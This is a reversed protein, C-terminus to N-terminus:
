ATLDLVTRSAETRCRRVRDVCLDFYHRDIESGVSNRGCSAAAVSTTGTGLFPDFVTDGVFSFMRILRQALRLPYPAPHNRTSVGGLRWIQQFWEAHDPAPIVSMLRTALEPKRYGGPKRQFLIYEIDNKIVGNPEYPKGFFGGTGMEYQANAIKYWIIPALNDFGILRCREQISAHLPFVLHRGYARRSVNVDGVVIVMRGGPVLADYAHRWVQDLEDLFDDYDEVQALQLEHDNYKKLTWYPPSTLVLDISEPKLDLQRSDLNHLVHGTELRSVSRHLRACADADKAIAPFAKQPEAIVLDLLAQPVAERVTHADLPDGLVVPESVPEPDQEV